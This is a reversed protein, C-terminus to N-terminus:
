IGMWRDSSVPCEGLEATRYVRELRPYSAYFPSMMELAIQLRQDPTLNRYYEANAADAEEFTDFAQIFIERAM